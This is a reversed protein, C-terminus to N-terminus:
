VPEREATCAAEVRARLSPHVYHRGAAVERVATILDEDAAQKLVYGGAGAAFAERVYGPDDQMSLVAIRAGPTAELMAPVVQAGNGGPMVVDLLIVDPELSAALRSAEEVSAAEGVCEVDEDRSLLLRLSRRVLAHRDVILVRIM